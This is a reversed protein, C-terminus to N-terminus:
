STVRVFRNLRNYSVGRYKFGIKANAIENTSNFSVTESVQTNNDSSNCSRSGSQTPALKPFFELDQCV